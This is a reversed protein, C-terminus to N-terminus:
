LIIPKLSFTHQFYNDVKGDSKELSEEWFLPLDVGFKYAIKCFTPQVKWLTLQQVREIMKQTKM